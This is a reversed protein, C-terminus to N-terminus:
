DWFGRYILDVVRTEVISGGLDKITFEIKGFQIKSAIAGGRGQGYVNMRVKGNRLIIGQSGHSARQERYFGSQGDLCVYFNEDSFNNVRYVQATVSANRVMFLETPYPGANPYTSAYGGRYPVYFVSESLEEIVPEPMANQFVEFEYDNQVGNWGTATVRFKTSRATSVKNRTVGKLQLKLSNSGTMVIAGFIPLRDITTGLREVKDLSKLGGSGPAFALNIFIGDGEANWSLDGFDKILQLPADAKSILEAQTIASSGDLYEVDYTNRYRVDATGGNPPITITRNFFGDPPTSSYDGDLGLNLDLHQYGSEVPRLKLSKVHRTFMRIALTRTDPAFELTKSLPLNDINANDGSNDAIVVKPAGVNGQTVRAEAAIRVNNQGTASFEILASKDKATLNKSFSLSVSGHNNIGVDPAPSFIVPLDGSKVSYNIKSGPLLTRLTALVANVTFSTQTDNWEVLRNNPTVELRSGPAAKQRFTLTYKTLESKTVTDNPWIRINFSSQRSVDSNNHNIMLDLSARTKEPNMAYLAPIEGSFLDAQTPESVVAIDYIHQLEEILHQVENQNWELEITTSFSKWNGPDSKSQVVDVRQKYEQGLYGSATVEIASKKVKNSRNQEFSLDVSTADAPLSGGTNLGGLPTEGAILLGKPTYGTLMIPDHLGVQASTTNWSLPNPNTGSLRFEPARARQQEVAYQPNTFGFLTDVPGGAIRPYFHVHGVTRAEDTNTPASFTFSGNPSSLVHTQPDIGSITPKFVAVFYSGTPPEATLRYNKSVAPNGDNSWSPISDNSVSEVGKSYTLQNVYMKAELTANSALVSVNVAGQVLDNVSTGNYPAVRINMKDRYVGDEIPGPSVLQEDFITLGTLDGQTPSLFKRQINTSVWGWADAGEKAIYIFPTVSFSTLPEPSKDDIYVMEINKTLNGAKLPLLKPKDTDWKAAGKITVAIVASGMGGSSPEIKEIEAIGDKSISWGKPYNTSATLTVTKLDKYFVMRSSNVSLYNQGDFEIDNQSLDFPILDVVINSSTSNLADDENDYGKGKVAKINFRFLTNRLVNTFVPKVGPKANEVFDVRYFSNYENGDADRYVGNIVLCPRQVDFGDGYLGTSHEVMYIEREFAYKTVDETTFRYVPIKEVAESTEAVPTPATIKPIRSGEVTVYEYNGFAPMLMGKSKTHYVAVGKLRFNDLGNARSSLDSGNYNIGVDVRSIMRILYMDGLATTSENFEVTTEAWMPLPKSSGVGVPWPGVTAVLSDRIYAESRGLKKVPLGDEYVFRADADGIIDDANAFLLLKLKSGRLSEPILVSYKGDGESRVTRINRYYYSKPEEEEMIILKLSKLENELEETLAKTKPMFSGGGINLSIRIDGSEPDVIPKQDIIDDHMCSSILLPLLVFLVLKKLDKM